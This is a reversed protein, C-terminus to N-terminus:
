ANLNPWLGDRGLCIFIVSLYIAFSILACAATGLWRYRMPKEVHWISSLTLGLRWFVFADFGYTAGRLVFDKAFISDNGFLILFVLLFFMLCMVSYFLCAGVFVRGVRRDIPLQIIVVYFLYYFAFFAVLLNIFASDSLNINQPQLLM